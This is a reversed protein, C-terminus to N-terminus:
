DERKDRDLRKWEPSDPYIIRIDARCTKGHQSMFSMEAERASAILPADPDDPEYGTIGAVILRNADGDKWAGCRACVYRIPRDYKPLKLRRM